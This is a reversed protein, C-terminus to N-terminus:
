FLSLVFAREVELSFSGSREGEKKGGSEFLRNSSTMRRLAPGAQEFRVARRPSYHSKQFFPKTDRIDGVGCLGVGSLLWRAMSSCLRAAPFVGKQADEQGRKEKLFVFVTEDYGTSFFLIFFLQPLPADLRKRESTADPRRLKKTKRKKL